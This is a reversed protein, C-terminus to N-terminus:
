PYPLLRIGARDELWLDLDPTTALVGSPATRARPSALYPTPRPSASLTLVALSISGVAHLPLIDSILFAISDISFSMLAEWIASSTSEIYLLSYM